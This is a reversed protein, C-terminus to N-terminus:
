TIPVPNRIRNRGLVVVRWVGARGNKSRAMCASRALDVAQELDGRKLAQEAKAVADETQLRVAALEQRLREAPGRANPAEDLIRGGVSLWGDDIHRRAQAVRLADQQQDQQAQRMADCVAGRLKTTESTSGALKEAKNCDDLAPQLRGTALNEQGRQILARTIRGILRQGHRHRRIEDSTAIEFAEDLRGDALACEAQRIRLILM